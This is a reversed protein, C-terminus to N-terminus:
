EENEELWQTKELCKKCIWRNKDLEKIFSEDYTFDGGEIWKKCLSESDKFYHLKSKPHVWESGRGKTYSVPFKWGDKSM